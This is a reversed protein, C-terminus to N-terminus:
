QCIDSIFTFGGDQPRTVGADRGRERQGSRREGSGGAGAVGRGAVPELRDAAERGLLGPLRHRDVGLV